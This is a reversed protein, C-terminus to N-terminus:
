VFPAEDGEDNFLSDALQAAFPDEWDQESEILNDDETSSFLSDALHMAYDNVTDESFATGCVDCGLSEMTTESSCDPCIVLTNAEEQSENKCEYCTRSYKDLRDGHRACYIGNFRHEDIQTAETSCSSCVISEDKRAKKILHHAVGAAGGGLAGGVLGPGRGTLAKVSYGTAAGIGAGRKFAHWKGKKKTGAPEDKAGRLAKGAKGALGAAYSELTLSDGLTSKHDKRKTGKPDGVRADFSESSKNKKFKKHLAKAGRYAGYSVAATGAAALGLKGAAKGATKLGHSRLVKAGKKGAALVGDKDKIKVKGIDRGLKHGTWALKAGTKAIAAQDRVWRGGRTEEFLQDGCTSCYPEFIEELIIEEVDDELSDVMSKQKDDANNWDQATPDATKPTLIGSDPTLEFVYFGHPQGTAESVSDAKQLVKAEGFKTLIEKIISLRPQARDDMFLVVKQKDKSLATEIHESNIGKKLLHWDISDAIDEIDHLAPAQQSMMRSVNGMDGGGGVYEVLQSALPFQELLNNSKAGGAALKKKSGVGNWADHVAKQVASRKPTARRSDFSVETRELPKRQRYVINAGGPTTVTMPAGFASSDGLLDRLEEQVLDLADPERPEPTPSGIDEALQAFEDGTIEDNTNLNEM